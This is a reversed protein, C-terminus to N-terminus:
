PIIGKHFIYVVLSSGKNSYDYVLITLINDLPNTMCSNLYERAIKFYSFWHQTAKEKLCLVSVKKFSM